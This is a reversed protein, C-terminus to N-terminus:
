FVEVIYSPARYSYRLKPYRIRQYLPRQFFTSWGVATSFKTTLGPVQTEVAPQLDGPEGM